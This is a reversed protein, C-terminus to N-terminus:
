KEQSAEKQETSQQSNQSDSLHSESADSVNESNKSQCGNVYIYNTEHFLYASPVGTKTDVFISTIFKSDEENFFKSKIWANRACGFLLNKYRLALETQKYDRYNLVEYLYDGLSVLLRSYVDNVWTDWKICFDNGNECTIFMEDEGHQTILKVSKEKLNTKFVISEFPVQSM